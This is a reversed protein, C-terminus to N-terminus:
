IRDIVTTFLKELAIVPRGDSVNVWKGEGYIRNLEELDDLRSFMPNRLGITYFNMDQKELTERVHRIHEFSSQGNAYGVPYGDTIYFAIKRDETRQMLDTLAYELSGGDANGRLPVFKESMIGISKAEQKEFGKYVINMISSTRGGGRSWGIGGGNTTFGHVDFPINVKNFVEALIVTLQRAILINTEQNTRGGGAMSGSNDVIITCSISRSDQQDFDFKPYRSKYHGESTSMKLIEKKRFKRGHEAVVKFTESRSFIRDNFANVLKRVTPMAEEVVKNYMRKAIGDDYKALAEVPIVEDGLLVEECATFDIEVNTDINHDHELIERIEEMMDKQDEGQLKEKHAELFEDLASEDEMSALEKDWEEETMDWEEENGFDTNNPVDNNEDRLDSRDVGDNRFDESDSVDGLDDEDSEEEDGNDAEVENVNGDKKFEDGGDEDGEEDDDSDDGSEKSEGSKTSENSGDENENGQSDETTDDGKTEEEGGDTEEDEDVEDEEEDTEDEDAGSDSESDSEEKEDDGESSDTSTEDGSDNDEERSEDNTHENDSLNEESDEESSNNSNGSNEGAQQTSNGGGSNKSENKEEKESEDSDENTGSEANGLKDREPKQEEKPLGNLFAAVKDIVDESRNVRLLADYFGGEMSYQYLMLSNENLTLLVDRYMRYESGDEPFSRQMMEFFSVLGFSSFAKLRIYEEPNKIILDGFYKYSVRMKDYGGAYRKSMTVTIRWDEIHQFLTNFVNGTKKNMAIMRKYYKESMINKARCTKNPTQPFSSDLLHSMEHDLIGILIDNAKEDKMKKMAGDIWIESGDTYSKNSNFNVPINGLGYGNLLMNVYLRSSDAFFEGMRSPTIRGKRKYAM